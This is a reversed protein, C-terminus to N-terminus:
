DDTPSASSSDGTAEGAPGTPTGYLMRLMAVILAGGWLFVTPLLVEVGFGEGIWIGGPVVWQGTIFVVTGTTRLTGTVALAWVAFGMVIALISLM